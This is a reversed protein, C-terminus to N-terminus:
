ARSYYLRHLSLAHRRSIFQFWFVVGLGCVTFGWGLGWVGCGLGTTTFGLEDLCDCSVVSMSPYLLFYYLLHQSLAHRTDRGGAERKM